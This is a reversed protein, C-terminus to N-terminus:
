KILKLTRARERVSNKSRQLLKGIESYNMKGMNEKLIVDEDPIWAKKFKRGDV